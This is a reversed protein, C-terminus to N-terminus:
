SVSVWMNVPTSVTASLTISAPLSTQGTGDSCHRFTGASTNANYFAQSASGVQSFTPPTTGVALIGVYFFGSTTVSFPTTFNASKYGTANWVGSQDATLAQRAGTSDYLGILNQGATLTAGATNVGLGVGTATQGAMLYVKHLYITGSVNAAAGTAVLFQPDYNWAQYGQLACPLAVRDAKTTSLTSINSNATTVQGQLTSINSANTAINTNATSMQGQLTTINVTNSAINSTNVGISATNASINGNATSIDGTNTTIRTDQDTLAANLPVDWNPTGAPIPTYTM